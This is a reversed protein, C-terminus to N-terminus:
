PLEGKLAQPLGATVTVVLDAQEAVRQNLAGQLRQFKRGLRNDPVPATGVDNSVTVIPAPTAAIAALLGEVLAEDATERLLHNSLWLTLCDLLVAGESPVNSLAEPLDFPAEITSWSRGRRRQHEAIKERMERDFPQATAIYTRPRGSRVVLAEAFRSKGSAVGGLVLTLKPLNFINAGM